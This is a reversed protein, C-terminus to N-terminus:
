IACFYTAFLDFVDIDSVAYREFYKLPWVIGLLGILYVFLSGPPLLVGFSYTPSSPIVMTFLLFLTIMGVKIVGLSLFM